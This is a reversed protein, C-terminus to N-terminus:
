LLVVLMLTLKSFVSTQGCGNVFVLTSRSPKKGHGTFWWIAKEATFFTLYPKSTATLLGMLARNLMMRTRPFRFYYQCSVSVFKSLRVCGHYTIEDSSMLTPRCWPLRCPILDEALKGNEMLVVNAQAIAFQGEEIASYIISKTWYCCRM